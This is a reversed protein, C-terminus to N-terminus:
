PYEESRDAGAGCRQRPRLAAVARGLDHRRAAPRLRCPRRLIRGTGAAGRRRLRGPDSGRCALRGVDRLVTQGTCRGPRLRFRGGVAQPDRRRLHARASRPRRGGRAPAAGGARLAAALRRPRGARRGGVPVDGHGRRGLHLHKAAVAAAPDRFPREVFRWSLVALGVSLAILALTEAAGLPAVRLYRAFVFVPWHWLYLSYSILGAFVMPRLSLGRAALTDGAGNAYILLAAGLCPLLANAGPMPTDPSFAFVAVALLALGLLSLAEAIWRPPRPVEALALIAGLMLEWVRAPALYFAMAPYARVAWLGFGFSALALGGALLLLGRRGASRFLGLLLPFLLYFQEEVALSWTHLLPKAEAGADFYGSQQWFDFNSVFLATAAVSEGFRRLDAPFLLFLAAVAAAAVVAFLAPLIRRARREYFAALSYEGSRMEAHILGTILFGSIVFFVDVGVYGGGFPAVHFHYLVVPVVALARLGDIDARTLCAPANPFRLTRCPGIRFRRQAGLRGPAPGHFLAERPKGIPLLGGRLPVM